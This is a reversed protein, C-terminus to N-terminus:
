HCSTCDIGQGTLRRAVAAIPAILGPRAELAANFSRYDGAGTLASPMIPLLSKLQLDNLLRDRADLFGASSSRRGFYAEIEKEDNRTKAIAQAGETATAEHQGRLPQAEGHDIAVVGLLVTIAIALRKGSENPWNVTPPPDSGEM